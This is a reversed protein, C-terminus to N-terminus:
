NPLPAVSPQPLSNFANTYNVVPLPWNFLYTRFQSSSKTKTVYGVQNCYADTSVPANLGNTYSGINESPNSTFTTENYYNLTFDISGSPIGANPGIQFNYEFKSWVNNNTDKTCTKTALYTGIQTSNDTKLLNGTLVTIYTTGTSDVTSSLVIESNKDSNIQTSAPM